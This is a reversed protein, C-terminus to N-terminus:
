DALLLPTPPTGTSLWSTGCVSKTANHSEATDLLRDHVIGSATTPATTSSAATSMRPLRPLGAPRQGFQDGLVELYRASCRRYRWEAGSLRDHAAVGHFPERRIQNVRTGTADASTRDGASGAASSSGNSSKGPEAVAKRANHKRARRQTM